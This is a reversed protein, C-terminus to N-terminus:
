SVTTTGDSGATIGFLTFSSYQVMDSNYIAFSLKTIPDTGTWIGATIYQDAATANNEGVADVAISKAASSTYNPLYLQLSAFTSATTGSDQIGAETLRGWTTGDHTLTTRSNSAVSSGTGRLWRASYGTTSDNVQWLPITDSAATGRVSVTLMLDTYDQSITTFSVSAVASGLTQHEIVEYSM